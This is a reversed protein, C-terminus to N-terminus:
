KSGEIPIHKGPVAGYTDVGTITVGVEIGFVISVIVVPLLVVVVVVTVVVVVIVVVVVGEVDVVVPTTLLVLTAWWFLENLVSLPNPLKPSPFSGHPVGELWSKPCLGTLLGSKELEPDDLEVMWDFVVM